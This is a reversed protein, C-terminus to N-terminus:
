SAEEAIKQALSYGCGNCYLETSKDDYTVKFELDTHAYCKACKGKSYPPDTRTSTLPKKQPTPEQTTWINFERNKGNHVIEYQWGAVAISERAENLKRTFIHAAKPWAKNKVNINIATAKNQVDFFVNEPTANYPAEAKPQQLDKECWELFARAVLNSHTVEEHQGRVNEEFADIFDQPNKGLAQTIIYGIRTFDALRFVKPPTVSEKLKLATAAADLYGGLIEPKDKEYAANLEELTRREEPMPVTEFLAARNLLDGKQAPINLGNISLCRRFERIIVGDDTYLQRVEQGEGTVARCLSNSMWEPITSLNDYIPMYHHELNQILATADKPMGFTPVSSPDIIGRMFCQSTSKFTGACGYMISVPHPIDPFLCSINQVLLLLKKQEYKKVLAVLAESATETVQVSLTKGLNVYDLIKWPDGGRVAEPLPRQHEYRRFLTPVDVELSWGDKTIHYARRREDAMDLWLGNGEPDPAVRNYLTRQQNSIAKFHLVNLAASLAEAGIVKHERTYMLHAVYAKFETDRLRYIAKYATPAETQTQSNTNTANTANTTLTVRAYPTRHQDCFFEVEEELCLKVARDAQSEREVPKEEPTTKALVAEKKIFEAAKTITHDRYQQQTKPDNWKGVQSNKMIERIVIVTLGYRMLNVVLYSEAESRSKFNYKEWKGNYVDKLTPEKNLIADLDPRIPTNENLTTEPNEENLTPYLIHGLLADNEKRAIKVYSLADELGDSFLETDFSTQLKVEPIKLNLSGILTTKRSIDYTSDIEKGIQAAAKKAFARVKLNTKQRDEPPIPTIPLPFHIHFGNGSKAIFGRALYNSEIFQRLEEARKLAEQLEEDNAPKTADKTEKPRDIDLWFDALATVGDIGDKEKPNLSIWVCYGKSNMEEAYSMIEDKTKTVNYGTNTAHNKVTLLYTEREGLIALHLKAHDTNM